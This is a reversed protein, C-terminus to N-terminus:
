DSFFMSVKKYIVEVTDSAPNKIVEYDPNFTVLNHLAIGIGTAIGVIETVPTPILMSGMAAARYGTYVRVRFGKKEIYSEIQKAVASTNRAGNICFSRKSNILEDAIFPIDDVSIQIFDAAM